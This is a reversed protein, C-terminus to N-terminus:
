AVPLGEVAVAGRRARPLVGATEVEAAVARNPGPPSNPRM